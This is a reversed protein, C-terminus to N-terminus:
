GIILRDMAPRANDSAPAAPEPTKMTAPVGLMGAVEAHLDRAWQQRDRGQATQPTGYRVQATLGRDCLTRWLSVVLTDNGIYCPSLSLRGQADFFRLAVPQVPAEVAIPAQLLNAHFHLLSLGDSTTGEPFIAVTDGDRLAEAITHLVRKADRRSTRQLYLTGTGTALAGLLPWRRVEDKSVFRCFAVAHLVSIDLWSLHNAALLVGTDGAMPQAPAGHVQLTIGCHRMVGAAWRQVEMQRQGPTLRDFRVLVIWLGTLTHVTLRLVRWTGRLWNRRPVSLMSASM